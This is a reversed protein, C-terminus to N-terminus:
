WSEGREAADGTVVAKCGRLAEVGADSTTAAGIPVDKRAGHFDSSGTVVLDREAAVRRWYSVTGPAHGAHEAELGALGVACLRDVLSLPVGGTRKGDDDEFGGPHALVAVGGAGRILRVGDEPPLAHKVVWAPGGDALYEDFAQNLTAVAGAEVMAQAIHPRGVPAAGAIRRVAEADVHVGLEALRSLIATARDARSLRLRACEEQLAADEPDVWYGLVHVSVGDDETSLEIGPVFTLGHRACADDAEAWGDVTDHDTLALGSLGAGAALAVAEAPTATGDSYASHTHLDFSV